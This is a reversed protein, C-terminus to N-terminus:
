CPGSVSFRRGHIQAAIEIRHLSRQYGGWLHTISDGILVIEPKVTDKIAMVAAHRQDWDYFDKELKGAAIIATNGAPAHEWPPFLSLLILALVVGGLSVHLKRVFSM